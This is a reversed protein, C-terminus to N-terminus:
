NMQFSLCPQTRVWTPLISKIVCTPYIVAIVFYRGGCFPKFFTILALPWFLNLLLSPSSVPSQSFICLTLVLSSTFLFPSTPPTLPKLFTQKDLLQFLQRYDGEKFVTTVVVCFILYFGREKLGLASSHLHFCTSFSLVHLFFQNGFKCRQLPSKNTIYFVPNPFLIWVRSFLTLHQMIFSIISALNQSYPDAGWTSM